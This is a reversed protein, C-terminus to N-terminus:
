RWLRSANSSEATSRVTALRGQAAAGCAVRRSVPLHRSDLDGDFFTKDAAPAVIRQLVVGPLAM